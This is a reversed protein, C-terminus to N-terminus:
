SLAAEVGVATELEAPEDEIEFDLVDDSATDLELKELMDVVSDEDM